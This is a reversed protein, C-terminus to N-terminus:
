EGERHKRGLAETAGAAGVALHIRLVGHELEIRPADEVPFPLPIARSFPGRPIESHFARGAVGDRRVGHVVLGGTRRVVDVDERRVGPLALELVVTTDSAIVDLPPTFAFPPVMTRVAPISRAAADLELFRRAIDDPPVAPDGTIPDGANSEGAIPEGTNPDIRAGPDGQPGEPVDTGTIARHIARVHSRMMHVLEAQM